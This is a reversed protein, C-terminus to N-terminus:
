RCALSFNLFPTVHCVASGGQHDCSVCLVRGRLCDCSEYYGGGLHDRSVTGEGWAPCDCSLVM